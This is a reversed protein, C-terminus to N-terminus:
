RGKEEIRPSHTPPHPAPRNEDRVDRAKGFMTSFVSAFFSRMGSPKVGRHQVYKEVLEASTPTSAEAAETTEVREVDVKAAVEVRAVEVCPEKVSRADTSLRDLPSVVRVDPRALVHTYIM